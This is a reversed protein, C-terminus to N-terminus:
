EMGEESLREPNIEVILEFRIQNDEPNPNEAHLFQVREVYDKEELNEVITQAMTPQTNELILTVQNPDTIHFSAIRLNEDPVVSALDTTVEYMPYQNQRLTEQTATSESALRDLHSIQRSLVVAEANENLWINKEEVVHEYHMRTFFFYAGMLLLFLFFAGGVIYPLLNIKKKEFFNVNMM